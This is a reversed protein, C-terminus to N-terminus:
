KKMIIYYKEEHSKVNKFYDFFYDPNDMVNVIWFLPSTKLKYVLYYCKTM